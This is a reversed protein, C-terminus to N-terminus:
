KRGTLGQEYEDLNDLDLFPEHGMVPVTRDNQPSWDLPGPQLTSNPSGVTAHSRLRELKRGLRRDAEARSNDDLNGLAGIVRTHWARLAGDVLGGARLEDVRRIATQLVARDAGPQRADGSHSRHGLIETYQVLQQLLREPSRNAGVVQAEGLLSLGAAEPPFVREVVAALAAVAQVADSRLSGCLEWARHTIPVLYPKGRVPAQGADPICHEATAPAHLYSVHAGRVVASAYQANNTVPANVQLWWEESLTSVIFEAMSQAWTDVADDYMERYPEPLDQDSAVGFFAFNKRRKGPPPVEELFESLDDYWPSVADMFASSPRSPRRAGWQAKDTYVFAEPWVIQSSGWPRPQPADVRPAGIAELIEPLGDPRVGKLDRQLAADAIAGPLFFRLADEIPWTTWADVVKAALERAQEDSSARAIRRAQALGTGTPDQASPSTARLRSILDELPQKWPPKM